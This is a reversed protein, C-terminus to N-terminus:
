LLTISLSYRARVLDRVFSALVAPSLAELAKRESSVLAALRDGASYYLIVRQAPQYFPNRQSRTVGVLERLRTDEHVYM